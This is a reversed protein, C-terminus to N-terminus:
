AVVMSRMGRPLQELAGLTLVPAEAIRSRGVAAGPAARVVIVLMDVPFAAVAQRLAAASAAGGTVAVAVSADPTQAAALRALEGLSPAPGGFEIRSFDDLLLPSSRTNLQRLPTRVTLDKEEKIAQLGLSAAASAALEFAEASEYEAPDLSLAVVLHSRRTEEFQRVLFRGLKASSKWHIHRLDDGPVYDRLAHFAVDSSSLDSTPR